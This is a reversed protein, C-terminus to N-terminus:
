FSLYELFLTVMEAFAGQSSWDILSFSDAIEQM